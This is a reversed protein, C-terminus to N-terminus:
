APLCGARLSLPWVVERAGAGWAARLASAFAELAGTGEARELARVASWTAVYGLYDDASWRTRMSFSPAVVEEFPFDISRYGDEVMRREPRWWDALGDHYFRSVRADIEPAIAGMGYTILAVLAGPRAVRRVEDYYRPLDFWHAAQAVTVLDVSRDTLGSAEAPAV